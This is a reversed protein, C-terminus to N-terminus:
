ETRRQVGRQLVVRKPSTFRYDPQGHRHFAAEVKSNRVDAESYCSNFSKSSFNTAFHEFSDYQTYGHYEAIQTDEFHTSISMLFDQAAAREIEEDHFLKMVQNLPCDIPEIVYLFGGPKLVRLIQEFVKPYTASDVHHLSYAFFVGDISDDGAPLSQANSEVFEINTAHKSNRNKEAQVPDPDIALVSAALEAIQETFGLNGCGIDALRCGALDVFSQIVGINTQFGLDQVKIKM